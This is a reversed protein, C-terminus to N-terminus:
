QVQSKKIIKIKIMLLTDFKGLLSTNNIAASSVNFVAGKLGKTVSAVILLVLVEAYIM